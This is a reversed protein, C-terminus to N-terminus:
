GARTSSRTQITFLIERCACPARLAEKHVFWGVDFRHPSAAEAEMASREARSLGCRVSREGRLHAACGKIVISMFFGAPFEEGTEFKM